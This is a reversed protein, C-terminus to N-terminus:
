SQRLLYFIATELKAVDDSWDGYVEWSQGAFARGEARAWAHIAEHSEHMRAYEGVHMARAAEGGPTEVYRVEGSAEFPGSAQVGFDVDMPLDRRPPHHYLFVNHGEPARVGANARLFAWVKESAPGWTSGICDIAVRRRVAALPMPRVTEVSVSVM